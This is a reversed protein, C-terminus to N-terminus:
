KVIWFIAGEAATLFTVAGGGFLFGIDLRYTLFGAILGIIVCLLVMLLLAVGLCLRDITYGIFCCAQNEKADPIGKGEEFIQYMHLFSSSDMLLHPSKFAQNLVDDAETRALIVERPYDEL